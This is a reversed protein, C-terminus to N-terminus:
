QECESLIQAFVHPYRNKLNRLENRASSQRAAIELKSCEDAGYRSPDDLYSILHCIHDFVDQPVNLESSQLLEEALASSTHLMKNDPHIMM